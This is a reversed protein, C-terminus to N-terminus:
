WKKYFFLYCLFLFGSILIIIDLIISKIKERKYKKRIESKIIELEDANIEPFKLSNKKGNLLSTKRKQLEYKLTAKRNKAAEQRKILMTLSGWGDM